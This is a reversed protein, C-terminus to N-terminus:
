RATLLCTSALGDPMAPRAEDNTFSRRWNPQGTQSKWPRCNMSASM